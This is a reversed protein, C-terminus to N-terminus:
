RGLALLGGDVPITHGTVTPAMVLYLIAAAVEDATALRGLPTVKAWEEAQASTWGGFGTAILGPSVANVRVAPALARALSKTMTALAAKCAAYALSSGTGTYAAQSTVNVVAGEGRREMSPVAARVCYFPGKVNVAFNREWIDDSLRELERHPQVPATWGANNVLIDIGGLEAEVRSMMARVDGDRAVDAQVAVARRGLAELRAVAALAAERNRSYNVAIDAGAGALAFATALGIGTAGGTVVAVKGTLDM